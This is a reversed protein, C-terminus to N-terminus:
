IGNGGYPSVIAREIHAHLWYQAFEIHDKLMLKSCRQLWICHSFTLYYTSEKGPEQISAFYKLDHKIKWILIEWEFAFFSCQLVTGILNGFYTFAFVKKCAHYKAWEPKFCQHWLYVCLANCNHKEFQIKTWWKLNFFLFCHNALYM